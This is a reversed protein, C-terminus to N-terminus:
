FKRWLTTVFRPTFEDGLMTYPLNKKQSAHYGCRALKKYWPADRWTPTVLIARPARCIKTALSELISPTFPPNAYFPVDPDGDTLFNGLSGFVRDDAFISYYKELVHNFPSAFAEIEIGNEILIDYFSPHSAWQQGGMGLAAYRLVCRVLDGTKHRPYKQKLFVFMQRTHQDPLKKMSVRKGPKGPALITRVQVVLDPDINKEVCEERAKEYWEVSNFVNIMLRDVINKWEHQDSLADIKLRKNYATFEM